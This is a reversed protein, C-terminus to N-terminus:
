GDSRESQCSGCYLRCVTLGQKVMNSVIEMTQEKRGEMRGEDLIEEMIKCVKSVGKAEEKYYRIEDAPIKYNMEDPDTGYLDHMLRGLATEDQIKSNVYIIHADDQFIAGTEEIFRNIHYLPKEAGLVDNETIFIM